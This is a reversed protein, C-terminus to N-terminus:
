SCNDRNQRRARQAQAGTRGAARNEAAAKGTQAKEGEGYAALPPRHEARRGGHASRVANAPADGSSRAVFRRSRRRDPAPLNGVSGCVGGRIGRPLGCVQLAPAYGPSCLRGAPAPHVPPGCQGPRPPGSRSREARAPESRRKIENVLPRLSALVVNSLGRVYGSIAGLDGVRIAENFKRLAAVSEPRNDTPALDALLDTTLLEVEPPPMVSAVNFRETRLAPRASPDYPFLRVNRTPMDFGGDQGKLVLRWFASTGTTDAVLHVRADPTPNEVKHRRWNDFVWAEGAAMHVIQDACHFRVEPRTIVPIHVRVRYYWHHNMDSHLPVSGGGDIRMLRARSWVTDFSALVQQLYPSALLAPTPQMAGAVADNQTGGVTILRVASNGSFEQPHRSWAGSPLMEVEARLREADFRVPLRFFPRPLKL